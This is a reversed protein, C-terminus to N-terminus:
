GTPVERRVVTVDYFVTLGCTSTGVSLQRDKETGGEPRISSPVLEAAKGLDNMYDDKALGDWETVRLTYTAGEGAAMNSFTWSQDSFNGTEGAKLSMNAGTVKGYNTTEYSRNTSGYQGTIRFQYEGANKAGFLGDGDCSKSSSAKVFRSKITMDYQPKTTNGGGDSPGTPSSGGCAATACLAALGLRPLLTRTHM